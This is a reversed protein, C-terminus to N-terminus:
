FRSEQSNLVSATGNCWRRLSHWCRCLWSCSHGFCIMLWRTLALLRWGRLSSQLHRNDTLFPSSRFLGLLLTRRGAFFLRWTVGAQCLNFFGVQDILSFAILLNQQTQNEIIEEFDMFIMRHNSLSLLLFYSWFNCCKFLFPNKLFITLTLPRPNNLNPDSKISNTGFTTM